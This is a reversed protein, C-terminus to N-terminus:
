NWTGRRSLSCVDTSFDISIAIDLNLGHGMRSRAFVVKISFIENEILLVKSCLFSIVTFREELSVRLEILFVGATLIANIKWKKRQM